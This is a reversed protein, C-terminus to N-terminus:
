VVVGVRGLGLLGRAAVMERELRKKRGRPGREVYGGAGGAAREEVVEVKLVMVSMGDHGEPWTRSHVGHAHSSAYGQLAPLVLVTVHADMGVPVRVPRAPRSTWVKVGDREEGGGADEDEDGDPDSASRIWGDHVVLGRVDSDDTYVGTGWIGGM